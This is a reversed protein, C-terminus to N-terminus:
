DKFPEQGKPPVVEFANLTLGVMCYYGSIAVLEVVGKEGFTEVAHRYTADSIRRRNLLENCVDFVVAEDPQMAAPKKGVQLAEIVSDALGGKQALPAHAFWEYQARWYYATMLIAMESLRPPLSTRFRLFAGVRQATDALEPSRLWANFPGGIRGRPGAVIGDYARRQELTMADPSLDTVRSM